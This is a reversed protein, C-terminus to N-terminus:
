FGRRLVCYLHGRPAEQLSLASGTRCPLGHLLAFIPLGLAFRVCVPGSVTQCFVARRLFTVLQQGCYFTLGGAPCARTRIRKRRAVLVAVIWASGRERPSGCPSAPM